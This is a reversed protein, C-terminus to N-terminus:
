SFLLSRQNCECEEDRWEAGRPRISGQSFQLICLFAPVAKPHPRYASKRISFRLTPMRAFNQCFIASKIEILHFFQLSFLFSQMKYQCIPLLTSRYVIIIYIPYSYGAFFHKQSTKEKGFPLIQQVTFSSYNLINLFFPPPLTSLLFLFDILPSSIISNAPSQKHRTIM